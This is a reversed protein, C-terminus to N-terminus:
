VSAGVPTIHPLHVEFRAGPLAKNPKHPHVTITGGHADVIRHVIALGLGTGVPRTTFFPNFIRDIDEDRIGPGTDAVTLMVHSESREVGCTLTRPQGLDLEAMADSANRILNLLAQTLLQGDATIQVPELTLGIREVRIRASDLAPKHASLARDFLDWADLSRPSLRIERAFHLVDTVVANLGRVASVIKEATQASSELVTNSAPSEGKAIGGLDKAMMDAFLQIAALPNRVEHAIGAAMEGLAALRKSRQLQADASALQIELRQVQARLADHSKSLNETVRNYARIIDALDEMEAISPSAVGATASSADSVGHTQEIMDLTTPM